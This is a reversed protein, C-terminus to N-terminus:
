RRKVYGIDIPLEVEVKTDRRRGIQNMSIKVNSECRPFTYENMVYNGIAEAVEDTTLTFVTKGDSGRIDM